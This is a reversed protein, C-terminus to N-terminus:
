KPCFSWPMGPFKDWFHKLYKYYDTGLAATAPNTISSVDIKVPLTMCRTLTLVTLIFRVNNPDESKLVVRKVCTRGFRRQLKRLLIGGEPLHKRSLYQLYLVRSDKVYDILAKLGSTVLITTTKKFFYDM